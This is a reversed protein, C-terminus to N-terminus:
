ATMAGSADEAHALVSLNYERKDGATDTLKVELIGGGGREFTRRDCTVNIGIGSKVPITGCSACPRYGPPPPEDTFCYIAVSMEANSWATLRRMDGPRIPRDDFEVNTIM